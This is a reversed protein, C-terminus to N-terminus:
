RPDIFVAFTTDSGTAVTEECIGLRAGGNAPLVTVAEFKAAKKAVVGGAVQDGIAVATTTGDIKVTANYGYVQITGYSGSAITETCVGVITGDKATTSSAKVATIAATTLSADHIVLDGAALAGGGAMANIFECGASDRWRAKNADFINATAM